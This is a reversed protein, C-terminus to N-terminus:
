RGTIRYELVEDSRCLDVAVMLNVIKQRLCIFHRNCDFFM